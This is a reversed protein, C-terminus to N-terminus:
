ILNLEKQIINETFTKVLLNINKFTDDSFNQIIENIIHRIIERYGKPFYNIRRELLEKIENSTNPNKLLPIACSIDRITMTLYIIRSIPNNKAIEWIWLEEVTPELMYRAYALQDQVYGYEVLFRTVNYEKAAMAAGYLIETALNEPLSQTHMGHRLEPPFKVRYFEPSGHLISHAVQRRVGGEVVTFPLSSLRDLYINIKPKGHLADHSAFFGQESSTEFINVEVPFAMPPGLKEYCEAIINLIKEMTDKDVNGFTKVKIIQEFDKISLSEDMEEM